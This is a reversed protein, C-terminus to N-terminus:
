DTGAEHQQSIRTVQWNPFNENWTNINFVQCNEFLQKKWRPAAVGLPPLKRVIEDSLQIVQANDLTVLSLYYVPKILKDEAWRYLFTDIFKSAFINGLKGNELKTLFRELIELTSDPHDPDKVEVFLIANDLEVIFDVRSMNNVGHYNPLSPNMQDFVFADIANTFDFRLDNEELIM